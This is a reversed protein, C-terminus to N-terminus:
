GWRSSSTRGETSAHRVRSRKDNASNKSM